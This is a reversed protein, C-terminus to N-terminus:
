KTKTLSAQIQAILEIWHQKLPPDNSMQGQWYKNAAIWLGDDTL